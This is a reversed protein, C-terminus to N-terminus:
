PLLLFQTLTQKQLLGIMAASVRIDCWRLAETKRMRYDVIAACSERAMQFSVRCGENVRAGKSDYVETPSIASFRSM